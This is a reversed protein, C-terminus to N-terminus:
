QPWWFLRWHSGNTNSSHQVLGFLASTKSAEKATERRYLNWLLSQSRAGTKGNKEDRWLSWLPSYNREM